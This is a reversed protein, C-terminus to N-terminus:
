VQNGAQISSQLNKFVAKNRAVTARLMEDYLSELATVQNEAPWVRESLLSVFHDVPPAPQPCPAVEMSAPVKM